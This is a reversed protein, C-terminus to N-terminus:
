MVAMQTEPDFIVARDLKFRLRAPQGIRYLVTSSTRAILTQPAPRFHLLTEHGMPECVEIKADFEGVARGTAHDELVVEIDEPRIGLCATKGALAACKHFRDLALSVQIGPHDEASEVFTLQESHYEIRGRLLNMGPSGLFAAVFMNQPQRYVDLPAGVQMIRGEKMVCIRQGLTMAESQDHTVFIMTTQLRAHLRAIEARMGARMQADLNSLPEDLLFVKPRRVMARGLATRQRQGGSLSKPKRDLVDELHLFRAAEAVREAMENKPTGRFKLSFAMNERVSMHPFLAYNQFVMAIDRDKPEVDNVIRGAIQITGADVSDLGAILRLLTSKGCGSPGVLVLLEGPAAELSVGRLAEVPTRRDTWYTKRVQDIILEGM